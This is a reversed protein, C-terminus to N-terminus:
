IRLDLFLLLLNNSVRIFFYVMFFLNFALDIQQSLSENWKQCSEIPMTTADIFYIILSGVSLISVLSMLIRGSISQGICILSSDSLLLLSDLMM